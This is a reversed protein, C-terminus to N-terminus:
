LWCQHRTESLSVRHGLLRCRSHSYLQAFTSAMFRSIRRVALLHLRCGTIVVQLLIKQFNWWAYDAGCELLLCALRPHSRWLHYSATTSQLRCTASNRINYPILCLRGCSDLWVVGYTDLVASRPKWPARGARRAPRNPGISVSDQSAKLLSMRCTWTQNGASIRTQCDNIRIEWKM